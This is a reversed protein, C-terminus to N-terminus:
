AKRSLYRAAYSEIDSVAASVETGFDDDTSVRNLIAKIQAGFARNHQFDQGKNQKDAIFSEAAAYLKATLKEMVEARIRIETGWLAEAEVVQLQFERISELVPQWRNNYIYAWAEASNSDLVKKEENVPFEGARVFPSRFMFIEARLKIAAKILGRAIDFSARGRM